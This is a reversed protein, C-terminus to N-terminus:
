LHPSQPHPTSTERSEPEPFPTGPPLIQVLSVNRGKRCGPTTSPPFVWLFAVGLRFALTWRSGLGALQADLLGLLAPPQPETDTRGPCKSPAQRGLGSRGPLGPEREPFSCTWLPGPYGQLQIEPGPPPNGNVRALRAGAKLSDWPSSECCQSAAERSPRGCM